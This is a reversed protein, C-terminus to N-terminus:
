MENCQKRIECYILVLYNIQDWVYHLPWMVMKLLQQSFNQNIFTAELSLNAPSNISNGEDQPTETATESVTLM